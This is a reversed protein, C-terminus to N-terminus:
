RLYDLLSTPIVKALAALAADHSVTAQSLQTAAAAMDAGVLSSEQSQLNVKEQQLFSQNSNLQAVTSGYFERQQSVYNLSGSVATTANGIATADGSNLATVLQSLAGMVDGGAGLFLQSGPINTQINRGDAIEVSNVGTNGHYAVGSAQSPDSVFPPTTTATGGFIYSGRYSTNAFQVIQNQIQQVQQAIAQQGALTITGSAGQTGLSIAQNLSSVVSSLTSDATQLLGEISATNQLYQDTQSQLAQNQVDAAFAAPDDSPLNVRRSTSLQQLAAQENIEAQMVNNLIDPAFNPNVRM